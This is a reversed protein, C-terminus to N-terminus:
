DRPTTGPSQDHPQDQAKKKRAEHRLGFIWGAICGILCLLAAAIYLRSSAPTAASDASYLALILTAALLLDCTILIPKSLSSRM